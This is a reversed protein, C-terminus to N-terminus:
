PLNQQSQPEESGFLGSATLQSETTPVAFYNNTDDQQDPQVNPQQATKVKQLFQNPENGDSESDSDALAFAYKSAFDTM